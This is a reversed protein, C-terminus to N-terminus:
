KDKIAPFAQELCNCSVQTNLLKVLGAECQGLGTYMDKLNERQIDHSENTMAFFKDGEHKLYMAIYIGMRAFIKAPELRGKLLETTAMSFYMRMLSADVMAQMTPNKNLEEFVSLEAALLEEYQARVLQKHVDDLAMAYSVVFIKKDAVTVEGPGGHQCTYTEAM